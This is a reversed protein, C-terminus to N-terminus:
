RSGRSLLRGPATESGSVASVLVTCAVVLLVASTPGALDSVAGVGVIATVVALPMATARVTVVTPIEEPTAAALLRNNFYVYAVEFLVLFVAYLLLSPVTRAILVAGVLPPLPLLLWTASPLRGLYKQVPLAGLSGAFIALSSLAVFIGVLREDGHLVQLPIVTVAITHFGQWLAVLSFRAFLALLVPNHILPSLRDEPAQDTAPEVAPGPEPLARALLASTLLTAANLVLLGRLSLVTGAPGVLAAGVSTGTLRGIEALTNARNLRGPDTVLRLLVSTGSRTVAECFGRVLLATTAGVVLAPGPLAIAALTLALSCIEATRILRRASHQTLLRQLPRALLLAPLWPASLVAGALLGSGTDSGVQTSLAVLVLFSGSTNSFLLLPVLYPSRQLPTVLSTM